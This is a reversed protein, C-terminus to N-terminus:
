GFIHRVLLSCSDVSEPSWGTRTPGPAPRSKLINKPRPGTRDSIKLFTKTRTRGPGPNRMKNPGPGPSRPGFPKPGHIESPSNNIPFRKKNPGLGSFERFSWPIAFKRCECTLSCVKLAHSLSNILEIIKILWIRKM